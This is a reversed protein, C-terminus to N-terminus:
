FNPLSDLGIELSLLYEKFFAMVMSQLQDPHQADRIM